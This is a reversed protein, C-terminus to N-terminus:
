MEKETRKEQAEKTEWAHPYKIEPESSKTFSDPVVVTQPKQSENVRQEILNQRFSIAPNFSVKM